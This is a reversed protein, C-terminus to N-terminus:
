LEDDDRELLNLPVYYKSYAKRKKDISFRGQESVFVTAQKDVM